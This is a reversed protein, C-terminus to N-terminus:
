HLSCVYFQIVFYDLGFTELKKKIDPGFYSEVIERVDSITHVYPGEHTRCLYILQGNEDRVEEVDFASRISTEISEKKSLDEPSPLLIDFQPVILESHVDWITEYLVILKVRYPDELEAEILKEVTEVDTRELLEVLSDEEEIPDDIIFDSLPTGPRCFQITRFQLNAVCEAILVISGSTVSHSEELISIVKSIDNFSNVVYPIALEIQTKHRRSEEAAEVAKNITYGSIYLSNREMLELAVKVEAPQALRRKFCMSVSQM